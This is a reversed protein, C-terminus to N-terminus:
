CGEQPNLAGGVGVRIKPPDWGLRHDRTNEKVRRPPPTTHTHTVYLPGSRHTSLLQGLLDLAVLLPDGRQVGLALHQRYLGLVGGHQQRDGVAVAQRVAPLVETVLVVLQHRRGVAGGGGGGRGVAVAHAVAVLLQGGVGGDDHHAPSVSVCVCTCACLSRSLSRVCTVVDAAGGSQM